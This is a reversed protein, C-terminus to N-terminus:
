IYFVMCLQIFNENEAFKEDNQFIEKEQLNQTQYFRIFSQVINLFRTAILNLHTKM